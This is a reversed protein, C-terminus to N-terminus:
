SMHELAGSVKQQLTLVGLEKPVASRCSRGVAVRAKYNWEVRLLSAPWWVDQNWFSLQSVLHSSRSRDLVHMPVSELVQSFFFSSVRAVNAV